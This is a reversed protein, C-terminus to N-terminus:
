VIKQKTTSEREKNMLSSEVAFPSSVRCWCGFFSAAPAAMKSLTDDNAPNKGRRSENRNLQELVADVVSPVLWSTPSLLLLINRGCFLRNDTVSAVKSLLKEAASIAERLECTTFSLIAKKKETQKKSANKRVPNPQLLCNKPCLHQMPLAQRIGLARHWLVNDGLQCSIQLFLHWISKTLCAPRGFISTAYRTSCCPSLRHRQNGHVGALKPDRSSWVRRVWRM